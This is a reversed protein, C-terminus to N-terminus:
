DQTGQLYKLSRLLKKWDDVDPTQVRTCLFPITPQLDPRARKCLFLGQAVTTHFAEKKIPDLKNSNLSVDFLHDAAPTTVPRLAQIEHNFQFERIMKHIYDKM